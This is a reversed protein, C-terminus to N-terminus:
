GVTAVFRSNIQSAIGKLSSLKKTDIPSKSPFENICDLIEYSFAIKSIKKGFKEKYYKEIWDMRCSSPLDKLGIQGESKHFKKVLQNFAHVLLDPRVFDEIELATKDSSCLIFIDKKAVKLDILKDKIKIGGPDGDVLYLVGSRKGVAPAQVFDEAYSLGPVFQFGLVDSGLAYRMMTPLLLMDSPGEVMVAHRTPFFAMTSAGMGFLLPAFGPVNDDWFKNNIASHIQDNKDPHVLHVGNGLDEPLCGASHTTYIIKSAVQQRGLMQVLDAQADYHLRQEAEDILMIPRGSWKGSAFAILAVFQRLGDSREAFSTFESDENVVHVVVRDSLGKISVKVRSQQWFLAFNRELGRNVALEITALKAHDGDSLIRFYDSARVGALDFLNDLALPVSNLLPALEYDPLLNRADNGFIVVSPTLKALANIAIKRPNHKKESLVFDALLDPINRISAAMRDDLLEVFRGVYTKVTDISTEPLDEADSDFIVEMESKWTPFLIGDDVGSASSLFKKNAFLTDLASRLSTRPSKSRQPPPPDIRYRRSGDHSKFVSLWHSGELGAAALDDDSLYFRGVIEFDSPDSARCFDQEAPPEDNGLLEIARLMSSKGAENPGLISVLKGNTKLECKKKFRRFGVVTVTALDM